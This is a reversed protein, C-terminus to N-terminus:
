NLDDKQNNEIYLLESTECLFKMTHIYFVSDKQFNNLRTLKM